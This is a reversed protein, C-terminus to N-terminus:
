TVNFECGKYLHWWTHADETTSSCVTTNVPMQLLQGVPTTLGVLDVHTQLLSNNYVRTNKELDLIASDFGISADITYADTTVDSIISV